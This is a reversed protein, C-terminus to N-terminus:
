AQAISTPVDLVHDVVKWDSDHSCLVQKLIEIVTLLGVLLQDLLQDEVDERSCGADFNDFVQDLLSGVKGSNWAARSWGVTGERGTENTM